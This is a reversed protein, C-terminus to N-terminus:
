HFDFRIESVTPRRLRHVNRRLLHLFRKNVRQARYIDQYSVLSFIEILVNDPLTVIHAKHIASSQTGCVASGNSRNILSSTSPGNFNNM